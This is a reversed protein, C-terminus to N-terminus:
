SYIVWFKFFPPKALPLEKRSENGDIKKQLYLFAEIVLRFIITEIIRENKPYKKVKLSDSESQNSEKLKSLKKSITMNM